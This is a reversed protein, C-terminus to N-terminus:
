FRNMGSQIVNKLENWKTFRTDDIAFVLPLVPKNLLKSIRFITEGTSIVNDILVLRRGNPINSTLYFDLDIEKMGKYKQIYLQEHPYCKVIDFVDAGTQLAVLEAIRKTYEANGNHQPVPILIDSNNILGTEIFYAAMIKIAGNQATRNATQKVAHCIDKVNPKFYYSQYIM